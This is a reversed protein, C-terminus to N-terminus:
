PVTSNLKIHVTWKGGKKVVWVSKLVTWNFKIHVTWKGGKQGGVYKPNGDLKMKHSGNVKTNQVTWKSGPGDEKPAKSRGSEGLQVTWKEGPGDM